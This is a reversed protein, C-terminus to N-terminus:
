SRRREQLCVHALQLMNKLMGILCAADQAEQMFHISTKQLLMQSALREQNTCGDFDAYLLAASYCPHFSVNFAANSSKCCIETRVTWCITPDVDEGEFVSCLM